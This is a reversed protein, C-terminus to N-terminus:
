LVKNATEKNVKIPIVRHMRQKFDLNTKDKDINLRFMGHSAIKSIARPDIRSNVNDEVFDTDKGTADSAECENDSDIIIGISNLRECKEIKVLFFYM